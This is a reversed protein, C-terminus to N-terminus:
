KGRSQAAVQRAVADAVCRAASKTGVVFRYLPGCSSVSSLGLFYLGSVSSEFRNNLVPAHQYTEIKSLLSPHLMPLNKIDVRYGTALMVHDSRLTKGDSLTLAVGDDTEKIEQVRQLEHIMVKGVVRDKLWSAGAPGYRGRGRLLKDKTSRPLQQFAHPFNELAWNFWGPSIGAKPYRLRRFFTRDKMSDGELWVLPSRSVLQVNVGSEHLLAATELASQGGGIVVVGQGIFRDFTHHDATHSILPAAIHGYETSRYVYYALGPAMVVAPSEVVRGDILRVVFQGAKREITEVYTEDVSPVVHKHFWLGYEIFGEIPFPDSEHQNEGRFYQALGYQNYPDSLNTAWWYSRLFMGQPMQERWLNLPKGFVAVRLGRGQLHAATSLGYPGAGVVVVDYHATPVAEQPMHLNSLIKM